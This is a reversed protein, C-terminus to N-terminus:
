PIPPRLFPWVIIGIIKAAFVSILWGILSLIVTAVTLMGALKWRSIMYSDVIPKMVRVTEALPKVMDELADLRTCNERHRRDAVKRNEGIDAKISVVSSEINGIVRSIEDLKTM